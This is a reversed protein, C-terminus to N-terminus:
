DAGDADGQVEDSTTRRRNIMSEIFSAMVQGQRHGCPEGYSSNGVQRASTLPEECVICCGRLLLSCKRGVYVMDEPFSRKYERVYERNETM